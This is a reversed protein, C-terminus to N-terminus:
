MVWETGKRGKRCISKLDFMKQVEEMGDAYVNVAGYVEGEFEQNV